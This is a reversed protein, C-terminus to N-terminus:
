LLLRYPGAIVGNSSASLAVGAGAGTGTGLPGIGATGYRNVNDPGGRLRHHRTGTLDQTRHLSPLPRPEPRQLRLSLAQERQPYCAVTSVCAPVLHM